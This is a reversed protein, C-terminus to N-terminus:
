KISVCNIISFKNSTLPIKPLFFFDIGLNLLNQRPSVFPIFNKKECFILPLTKLIEFSIKRKNITFFDHNITDWNKPSILICRLDFNKTKILFRNDWVKTEGPIVKLGNNM